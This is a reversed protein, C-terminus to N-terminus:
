VKGRNGLRRKLEEHSITKERKRQAIVSLDHLDEMIREYERLPVIVARRKGKSDTVFQGPVAASKRM